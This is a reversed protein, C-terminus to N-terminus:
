TVDNMSAGKGQDPELKVKLDIPIKTFNRENKSILDEEWHIELKIDNDVLLDVNEPKVKLNGISGHIKEENEAHSAMSFVNGKMGSSIEEFEDIMDIEEVQLSDETETNPESKVKFNIFDKTSNMENKFSLDEQCTDELKIDTSYIVTNFDMTANIPFNGGVKSISVLRVLIRDGIKLIHISNQGLTCFFKFKQIEPKSAFKNEAKNRALFM